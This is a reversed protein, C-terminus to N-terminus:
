AACFILRSARSDLIRPPDVRGSLRPCQPYNRTSISLCSVAAAVAEYRQPYKRTSAPVDPVRWGVAVERRRAPVAPLQPRKMGRGFVCAYRAIVEWIFIRFLDGFFRRLHFAGAVVRPVRVGANARTKPTSPHLPPPPAERSPGGPPCRRGRGLAIAHCGASAPFFGLSPLPAGPLGQSLSLSSSRARRARPSTVHAPAEGRRSSRWPRRSPGVEQLASARPSPLPLPSLLLAGKPCASFDCAGPSRGTPLEAV